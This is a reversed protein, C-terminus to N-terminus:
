WLGIIHGTTWDISEWGTTDAAPAAEEKTEKKPTEQEPLTVEPITIATTAISSVNAEKAAKAADDFASWGFWCLCIAAWLVVTAAISGITNDLAEQEMKEDSDGSFGVAILWVCPMIISVALMMSIATNLHTPDLGVTQAFSVTLGLKLAVLIAVITTPFFLLALRLAQGVTSTSEEYSAKHTSRASHAQYSM